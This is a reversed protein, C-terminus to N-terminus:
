PTDEKHGCNFIDELKEKQEKSVQKNVIIKYDEKTTHAAPQLLEHKQLSFHSSSAAEPSSHPSSSASAAECKKQIDKSYQVKLQQNYFSQLQKHYPHFPSQRAKTVYDPWHTQGFYRDTVVIPLSDTSKLSV